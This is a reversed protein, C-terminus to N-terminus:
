GKRAKFRMRGFLMAGVGCAVLALSTPEPIPEGVNNLNAVYWTESGGKAESVAARLAVRNNPNLFVGASTAALQQAADMVFLFGSTGTGGETSPFVCAPASLLGPCSLGSTTYLVTGDPAFFRMVLDDLTIGAGAPQSANFVVGLSAANVIGLDGLTRTQSQSTQVDASSGTCTTAGFVSGYRDTTGNWSVCGVEVSTNNHITLVTNVAGLGSGSV